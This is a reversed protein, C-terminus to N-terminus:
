EDKPPLELVRSRTEIPGEPPLILTRAVADLVPRLGPTILADHEARRVYIEYAKVFHARILDPSTSDCIHRWGGVAEVARMTVPPLDPVRYRGVHRVARLVNNWADWGSPLQGYGEYLVERRVLSPVPMRDATAIIRDVARELADPNLDALADVWVGLRADHWAYADFALALRQVSATISAAADGNM